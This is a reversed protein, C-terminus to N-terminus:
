NGYNPESTSNELAGRTVTREIKATTNKTSTTLREIKREEGYNKPSETIANSHKLTLFLGVIFFSICISAFLLGLIIKITKKRCCRNKSHNLIHSFNYRSYNIEDYSLRGRRHNRVPISTHENAPSPLGELSPNGTVQNLSVEIRSLDTFYMDEHICQNFNPKFKSNPRNVYISYIEM